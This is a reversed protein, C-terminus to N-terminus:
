SNSLRKPTTHDRCPKYATWYEPVPTIGEGSIMHGLYQIHEKLFSCKEMKLRLDAKQLREFVLRLHKLHTEVSPSYISIDDLYGFMFDFPALM